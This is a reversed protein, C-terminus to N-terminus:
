CFGAPWLDHHLPLVRKLFGMLHLDWRGVCCLHSRDAHTVDTRQPLLHCVFGPHLVCTLVRKTILQPLLLRRCTTSLNKVNFKQKDKFCRTLTESSSPPWCSESSVLYSWCRQALLKPCVLCLTLWLPPLYLILSMNERQKMQVPCTLSIHTSTVTPSNGIRLYRQMGSCQSWVGM